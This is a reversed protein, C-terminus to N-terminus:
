NELARLEALINEARHADTPSYKGSEGIELLRGIHSFGLASPPMHTVIDDINRIVTFREWRQRTKKYLEGWIVRPCGFGYGEFSDRLDPRHYWIYEHCLVAIAAGHSYGVTVINNINPNFIYPSIYAELIKWVSLFGSHAFWATKGMRKYARAPFDLNNKWDNIGSSAEFYIYLTSGIHEIAYDATNEVRTYDINISNEFLTSLKM